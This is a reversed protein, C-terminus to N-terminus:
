PAVLEAYTAGTAVAVLLTALALEVAAGLVDGTVGGLRRTTRWVLLLVVAVALAVALAAHQVGVQSGHAVAAVAVGAVLWSALAAPPSVSRTFAAGLGDTRAGPVPSACTLVLACRSVCVLVGVLWPGAPLGALSAVSAAQVGLVVLVAVGGAPGSTGSHMVELSRERDYSATLGDATDSLGDLHFCRTGLALVAVALFGLALAPTGLRLGVWLLLAVAAGLPLVALPALLVARGATRRDVVRPPPVRLVTLTGLALRWADSM